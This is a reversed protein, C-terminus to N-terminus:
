SGAAAKEKQKIKDKGYHKYRLWNKLDEDAEIGDVNHYFYTMLRNKISQMFDYSALDREGALYIKM